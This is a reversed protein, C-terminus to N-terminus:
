CRRLEGKLSLVSNTACVSQSDCDSRSRRGVAGMLSGACGEGHTRMRAAVAQEIRTGFMEVACNHGIRLMFTLRDPHAPRASHIADNFSKGLFYTASEPEKADLEHLPDREWEARWRAEYLEKARKVIERSAARVFM